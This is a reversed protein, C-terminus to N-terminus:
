LSSIKGSFKKNEKLKEFLKMYKDENKTLKKENGIGMGIKAEELMVNYKLKSLKVFKFFTGRFDKIM